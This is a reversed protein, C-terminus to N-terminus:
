SVDVPLRWDAVTVAGVEVAVPVPANFGSALTVSHQVSYRTVDDIQDIIRATAETGVDAANHITISATLPVGGPREVIDYIAGVADLHARLAGVTGEIRRLPISGVIVERKVTVSWEPDWRRVGFAWALWPLLAVPCRRPDWLADIPVDRGDAYHAMAQELHRELPTANPPLLTEPM